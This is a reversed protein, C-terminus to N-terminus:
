EEVTKMAIKLLGTAKTIRYEPSTVRFHKKTSIADTYYRLGLEFCIKHFANFVRNSLDTIGDGSYYTYGRILTNAANLDLKGNIICCSRICDALDEEIYGPMVTDFDLFGIVKGDNFLINSLKVDGHVVSVSRYQQSIRTMNEIGSSILDELYIDRNDPILDSKEFLSLYEDYYYQLNHLMPYVPQPKDKLENLALHIRAIGSGCSSLNDESLPSTLIKGEIYPYMRWRNGTCDTYYIKGDYTKMWAPCILKYKECSPYYLEFNRILLDINMKDNIRQCVYKGNESNVLFSENIHGDSLPSVSTIECSLFQKYIDQPIM